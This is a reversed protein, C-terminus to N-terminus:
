VEYVSSLLFFIFILYYILIFRVVVLLWRIRGKTHDLCPHGIRSRAISQGACNM